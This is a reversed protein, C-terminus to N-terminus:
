PCSSTGEVCCFSFIFLRGRGFGLWTLQRGFALQNVAKRWQVGGPSGSGGGGGKPEIGQM